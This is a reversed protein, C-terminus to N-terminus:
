EQWPVYGVVDPIAVVSGPEATETSIKWDGDAWVLPYVASLTVTQGELSSVMAVDVRAADGDYALLRFGAVRLRLDASGGAESGAAVLQDRYPGPAMAYAIWAPVVAPDTSVVAAYSAALVAGAPTHQFCYRFGAPDSAGPGAQESLPYAATGQFPWEDVAPATTLQASGAEHGELGCVSAGAADPAATSDDRPPTTTAATPSSPPDTPTDGRNANVVVLVIALVALLAVVIAAAIFGPRSFPSQEDDVM